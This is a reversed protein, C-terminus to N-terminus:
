QSIVMASSSSMSITQSPVFPISLPFKYGVTVTVLDGPGNCGSSVCTGSVPYGSWASTVTMASPDIGPYGLGEVYTKIQASTAGCEYGPSTCASGRVIAFRTGERAADSIYHYTYLALCVKMIGIVITLLIVISIAMEVMAAGEEGREGGRQQLSVPARNQAIRPFGFTLRRAFPKIM